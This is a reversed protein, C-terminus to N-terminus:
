VTVVKVVVNSQLYGIANQLRGVSDDAFGLIANCPHCVVGRIDGTRHNHDLKWGLKSKPDESGCCACKRGQAEFIALKGEFTIGYRYKYQRRKSAERKKPSDVRRANECRCRIYYRDGDPYERNVY